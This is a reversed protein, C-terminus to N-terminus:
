ENCHLAGECHSRNRREWPDDPLDDNPGHDGVPDPGDNMQVPSNPRILRLEVLRVRQGDFYGAILRRNASVLLAPREVSRESQAVVVPRTWQKSGFTLATLMLRGGNREVYALYLTGQSDVALAPQAQDEGDDTGILEPETWLGTPSLVSVAIDTEAGNRYTWAAVSRGDVANRLQVLDADRSPIFRHPQRSDALLPSASVLLLCCAIAICVSKRM